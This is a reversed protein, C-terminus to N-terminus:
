KKNNKVREREREREYCEESWDFDEEELKRESEVNKQAFWDDCNAVRKM